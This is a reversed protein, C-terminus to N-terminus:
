SRFASQLGIALTGLGGLAGLSMSVYRPLGFLGSTTSVVAGVFVAAILAAGIEEIVDTV